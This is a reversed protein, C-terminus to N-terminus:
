EYYLAVMLTATTTTANVRISRVPLIQGAVCTFSVAVGNEAVAVVIGAGGVYIADAPIPKTAPAASYTTGDFNVTDSKTIAAFLSYSETGGVAM